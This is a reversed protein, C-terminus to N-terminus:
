LSLFDTSLIASHIIIVGIVDEHVVMTLFILEELTAFQEDYACMGLGEKVKLERAIFIKRAISLISIGRERFERIMRLANLSFEYGCTGAICLICCCVCIM